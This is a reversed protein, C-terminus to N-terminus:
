LNYFIPLFYVALAIDKKGNRNCYTQTAPINRCDYNFISVPAFLMRPVTECVTYTWNESYGIRSCYLLRLIYKPGTGCLCPGNKRLNCLLWLYHNLSLMMQRFSDGHRHLKAFNVISARLSMQRICLRAYQRKDIRIM